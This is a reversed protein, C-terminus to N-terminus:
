IPIDNLVSRLRRLNEVVVEIEGCEVKWYDLISRLSKFTEGQTFDAVGFESELLEAVIMLFFVDRLRIWTMKDLLHGLQLPLSAFYEQINSVASATEENDLTRNVMSHIIVPVHFWIRYVAIQWRIGLVHPPADGRLIQNRLSQLEILEVPPDLKRSFAVAADHLEEISFKLAWNSCDTSFLVEVATSFVRSIALELADIHQVETYRQPDMAPHMGSYLVNPPLRVRYQYALVGGSSRLPALAGRLAVELKQCYNNLIILKNVEHDANVLSFHRGRIEHRLILESCASQHHRWADLPCLNMLSYICALLHYQTTFVSNTRLTVSLQESQLRQYLIAGTLAYDRYFERNSAEMSLVICQLVCPLPLLDPPYDPCICTYVPSLPNNKKLRKLYQVADKLETVDIFTAQPYVLDVFVKIHAEINEAVYQEFAQIRIYEAATRLETLSRFHKDLLLSIPHVAFVPYGFHAGILGLLSEPSIRDCVMENRDRTRSNRTKLGTAGTDFPAPLCTSIATDTNSDPSEYESASASSRTWSNTGGEMNSSGFTPVIRTTILLLLQSIQEALTSLKDQSNFAEIAPEFYCGKFLEPNRMRAKECSSCVPRRSDCKMKKLRCTSCATTVRLRRDASTRIRAKTM